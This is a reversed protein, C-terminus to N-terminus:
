ERPVLEPFSDKEGLAYRRIVGSLLTVITTARESIPCPTRVASGMIRASSSLASQFCIEISCAPALKSKPSWVVPPLALTRVVQSGMRLAPAWARSIRIEAAANVQPTGRDVQVASFPAM